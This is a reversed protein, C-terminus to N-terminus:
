FRIVFRVWQSRAEHWAKYIKRLRWHLVILTLGTAMFFFAILGIVVKPYWLILIGLVMLLLGTWM